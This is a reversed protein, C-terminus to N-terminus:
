LIMLLLLYRRRACRPRTPQWLHPLRLPLNERRPPATAPRSVQIFLIMWCYIITPTSGIRHLTFLADAVIGNIRGGDCNVEELSLWSRGQPRAAGERIRRKHTFHWDLHVDLQQKGRPTDFFRLGCQKCQLPLLTYLFHVSAEHFRRTTSSAWDAVALRAPRALFGLSM